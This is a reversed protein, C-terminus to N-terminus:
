VEIIEFEEVVVERNLLIKDSWTTETLFMFFWNLIQEALKRSTFTTCERYKAWYNNDNDDTYDSVVSDLLFDFTESIERMNLSPFKNLTVHKRQKKDRYLFLRLCAGNPIYLIRYKKSM